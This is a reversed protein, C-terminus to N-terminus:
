KGREEKRIAMAIASAGVGLCRAIEAMSVGMERNLRYAVKARVAAVERRQSGGCVEEWRVGAAACLGKVAQNMKQKGPKYHIQRVMAEDAERLLGEVFEGNGLVRADYAQREGGQRSSIVKSWGGLSRILGGGVWEPRRGMGRGEEMFRRYIGMAKRKQECFLKWVYGSEQWDNRVRGALVGHGSWRYEELERLDKVLSGRLPNLHIYRVLELLYPSEECVISKYRNQFLHGARRHRRNFRVAYGTLLKRMFASLGVQGSFLLLHAHNGMLTWALIRTGTDLSVERIRSVFDERDSDDWFIDRGEIGRVMM